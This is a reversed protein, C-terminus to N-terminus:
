TEEVMNESKLKIQDYSHIEKLYYKLILALSADLDELMLNFLWLIWRETVITKLWSLKEEEVLL